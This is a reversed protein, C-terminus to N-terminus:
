PRFFSSIKEFDKYVLFMSFLTFPGIVLTLTEKWNLVWTQLYVIGFLSGMIILFIRGFFEFILQLVYNKYSIDIPISWKKYISIFFIMLGISITSPSGLPLLASGTDRVQIAFPVAIKLILYAGVFELITWFSYREWNKRGM